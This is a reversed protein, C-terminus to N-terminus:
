VLESAVLGMVNLWFVCHRFVVFKDLVLIVLRFSREVPVLIIKTLTMM